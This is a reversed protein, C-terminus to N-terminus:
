EGTEAEPAETVAPVEPTEVAPRRRRRPKPAEAEPEPWYGEQYSLLMGM